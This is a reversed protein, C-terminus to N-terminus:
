RPTASRQKHGSTGLRGVAGMGPMSAPDGCGKSLGDRLGALSKQVPSPSRRKWGRELAPHEPKPPM